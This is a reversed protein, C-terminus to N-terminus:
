PLRVNGADRNGARTGSQISGHLEFQDGRAAARVHTVHNRTLRRVFKQRARHYPQRLVLSVFLSVTARAEVATPGKKGHNWKTSALLRGADEIWRDLLSFDDLEHIISDMAGACALLLGDRDPPETRLFLSFADEYLLRSERQSTLFRCAAKWYQLWPDQELVSEPFEELWNELTEARGHHLMEAAHELVLRRSEAWDQDQNVLNVADDVMGRLEMLTASRRRLRQRKADPFSESAQTSLFEHLLPHYAYVPETSGSKMSVYYNERYLRALIEGAQPDGSLEIAMSETVEPLFATALLLQRTAPEFKQFVEGALYDFILQPAYTDPLATSAGTAAAQDLMLILGAPWGQTKEYIRELGAEDIDAGWLKVIADSEHRALRLENWGIMHLAQNARLRVM